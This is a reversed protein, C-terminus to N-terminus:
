ATVERFVALTRRATEDWTFEAARRRGAASLEARRAPDALLDLVAQAIAEPRRSDVHVAATGTVEKMAGWDSTVVPCGAAMAELLPIGFGEYLSPFVLAVASQYLAALDDDPVFGLERLHPSRKASEEADGWRYSKGAHALVLPRQENVRALVEPFVDFNKAGWVLGVHLIFDRELGYRGRVEAIREAPVPEAFAQKAGHPILTFKSEPVGLLPALDRRSTESCTVVRDAARAYLPLFIKVYIRDSLPYEEPFKFQEAGHITLLKRGRFGFPISMKPCFVADLGLANARRAVQVQDWWLKNRCPLVIEQVNPCGAYTGAAADDGLFVCYETERDMEFLRGLLERTYVGIGGPEELNRVLLGIRM